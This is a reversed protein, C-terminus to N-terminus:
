LYARGIFDGDESPAIRLASVSNVWLGRLMRFYSFSHVVSGEVVFTNPGDVVLNYVKAYDRTKEVSVVENLYINGKVDAAILLDGSKLKSTKKWGKDTCFNHNSTTCIATLSSKTEVKWIEIQEHIKKYLVNQPNLSTSKGDFSLVKEGNSFDEISKWGSPSLVKTGAVFCGTCNPNPCSAGGVGLPTGCKLCRAESM